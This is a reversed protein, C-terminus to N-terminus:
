KTSKPETLRFTADEKFATTEDNNAIWLEDGKVRIYFGPFNSAEYSTGGTGGLGAVQKFSADRNFGDTKDDVSLRMRFGGHTLYFGPM